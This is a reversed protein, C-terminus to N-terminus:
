VTASHNQLIDQVKARLQQPTFPKMLLFSPDEVSGKPAPGQWYGTVFLVPLTSRVRRACDALELGGMGPMSVDTILLDPVSDEILRMAENGSAATEVSVNLAKLGRCVMNRIQVQDEVMLVRGDGGQSKRVAVPRPEVVGVRPVKRARAETTPLLIRFCTGKGVLSTVTIQGGSQRVIGYVSSLGLGTGVDPGKTTFFPEFVRSRTAEDMGVGTDKVTVAAYTGAALGELRAEQPSLQVVETGFVLTGGRPMADRANVALNMLVRDIQVVDVCIEPMQKALRLDVGVSEGLVRSSLAHVRQVAENLDAYEPVLAQQRSFAVLQKVLEAASSSAELVVNLDSKRPDADDTQEAVMSCYSMIVALWHNFDHAIGQALSGLTELRQAEQGRSAAEAMLLRAQRQETLDHNVFAYGSIEGELDLLRTASIRVAVARRSYATQSLEASWRGGSLLARRMESESHQGWDTRLLSFLSRGLADKSRIGYVAEAGRNWTRVCFRPDTSIIADAVNHVVQAQQVTEAARRAVEQELSRNEAEVKRRYGQLRLINRLRLTLEVPDFPRRLFDDVGAELAQIHLAHAEEGTTVMIVPLTRLSPNSRLAQLLELGSLGPLAHDVIVASPRIHELLHLAAEGSEATEVYCGASELSAQLQLRSGTDSDIVLVSPSGSALLDSPTIEM